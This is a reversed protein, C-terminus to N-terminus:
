PSRTSHEASNRIFQILTEEAGAERLRNEAEDSWAFSVGREEVLRAIRTQSVRGTLLDTIQDLRLGLKGAQLPADITLQANAILTMTRRWEGLGSKRVAIRYEGPPLRLTSPTNGAYKGNVSIEAGDPSSKVVLTGLQEHKSPGVSPELPNTPRIQGPTAPEPSPPKVAIGPLRLPTVVVDRDGDVYVTLMTGKRIDAHSGRMLLAAPGYAATAAATVAKNSGGKLTPAGRLPIVAGDPTKLSDVSFSLKGSQGAFGSGGVGTVRGSAWTGFPIVVVGNVRVDERVQFRIPDNEKNKKSNLDDKLYLPIPTGDPIKVTQTDAEQAVMQAGTLLTALVGLITVASKGRTSGLSRGIPRGDRSAAARGLCSRPSSLPSTTAWAM